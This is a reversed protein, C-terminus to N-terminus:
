EVFTRAPAATTEAARTNIATRTVALDVDSLCSKGMLITAEVEIAAVTISQSRLRYAIWTQAKRAAAIPNAVM